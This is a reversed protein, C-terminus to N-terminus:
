KFFRRLERVVGLIRAGSKKGIPYFIGRKEPAVPQILHGGRQKYVYRLKADYGNVQVLALYGDPCHDVLEIILIDEQRFEPLYQDDTVKFAIYEQGDQLLRQPIEEYGAREYINAWPVGAPVRTYVVVENSARLRSSDLGLLYDTSVRYIEALEKITNLDPLNKDTEWQSVATQSVGLRSALSAQTIHKQKRLERYKNM